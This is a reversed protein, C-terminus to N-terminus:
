IAQKFGNEQGKTLCLTMTKVPNVYSIWPHRLRILRDDNAKRTNGGMHELEEVM